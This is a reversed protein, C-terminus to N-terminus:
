SLLTWVEFLPLMMAVVILGVSAALGCILVPEVVSALRDATARVDDEFYTAVKGLMHELRGTEEGVAVMELVMPPFLHAHALPEALRHGEGVEERVHRVAATIVRNGTIREVVQLARIIPVGSQLLGGLTRCFRAIAAKLLMPGAVPLRLLLRDLRLAGGPTRAVAGVGAGVLAAVVPLAWWGHSVLRWTFLLTRTILPLQVGLDDYVDMFRPLVYLLLFLVVGCALVSVAVPYTLASRIKQRLSEEHELQEALRQLVDELMGGAEGAAILHILLPPFYDGLRSFAAALTEGASVCYAVRELSRRQTVDASQRALINLAEVVPVGAGFMTAFQRCFLALQRHQVRRHTLARWWEALRGIDRDAEMSVAVLGQERLRRFVEAESEGELRGVVVDGRADRARFAYVAM